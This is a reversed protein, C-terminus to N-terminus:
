PVDEHNGSMYSRSISNRYNCTTRWGSVPRSVRVMDIVKVWWLLESLLGFGYTNGRGAAEDNWLSILRASGDEVEYGGFPQDEAEDSKNDANRNKVADELGRSEGANLGDESGADTTRNRIQREPPLFLPQLPRYELAAVAIQVGREGVTSKMVVHAPLREVHSVLLGDVGLVPLPVHPVRDVARGRVSHAVLDHAVVVVGVDELVGVEAGV